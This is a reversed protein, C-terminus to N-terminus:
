PVVESPFLNDRERTADPMTTEVAPSHEGIVCAMKDADGIDDAFSAIPMPAFFLDYFQQTM